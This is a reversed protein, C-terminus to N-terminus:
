KVVITQIRDSGVSVLKIPVEMIDQIAELYEKAAKPLQRVSRCDTIDKDWGKLSLYETQVSSLAVPHIPFRKLKTDLIWYGTCIKIEELGSLVDLLTLAMSDIGNIQASYRAAVSDFWGVRRARGTTSGFENGQIRIRQGTDNKLETPFPGEGVRTAYAKYVGIVKDVCRPPIGTGVSIGGTITHSSTVYPYTGFGIDLMTGQAGEFLIYRDDKYWELLLSDVPAVYEKLYEWIRNLDAIEAELEPTTVAIEHSAYLSQLRDNLWDPYALDIMRLGTRSTQDAYAPGIGRQTTGIKGAGLGSEQKNDLKKHLPLVLGAREDIYLRGKFSLGLKELSEIEEKLSYPDIVVGAGIVCKTEPYLIGSPITHFVYKIGNVVITHGANAGGQFRVVVDADAGLFDVIKAKAEDGWMCGLVALSSM